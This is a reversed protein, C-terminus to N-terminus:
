DKPHMEIRLDAANTDFVVQDCILKLTVIQPSGSNEELSYGICTGTIDNGDLVVRTHTDTRKEIKLEHM